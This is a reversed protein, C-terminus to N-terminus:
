NQRIVGSGPGEVKSNPRKSKNDTTKYYVKNGSGSITVNNVKDVYVTNEAGELTIKSAFGKITIANSTGEIVVNGGSLNFTKKHGVGEVRVNGGKETIEGAAGGTTARVTSSIIDGLKQSYSYGSTLCMLAIAMVKIKNM